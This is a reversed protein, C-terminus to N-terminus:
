AKSIQLLISASTLSNVPPSIRALRVTVQSPGGDLSVTCHFSDAVSSGNRFVELRDRCSQFFEPTAIEHFFHRGRVVTDLRDSGSPQDPDYARVIWDEGLEFLGFPLAPLEANFSLPKEM